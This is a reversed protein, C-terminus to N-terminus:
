YQRMLHSPPRPMKNIRYTDLDATLQRGMPDKGLLRRVIGIPTVVAYFVFGLIITTNTQALFDGIAMWSKYIRFLSRPFLAGPLLLCVATAIAWWRPKGSGFVFPWFGILAFISGVTMGFSRLQKIIIADQM